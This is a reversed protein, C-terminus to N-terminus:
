LCFLSSCNEAIFEFAKEAEMFTKIIEVGGTESLLDSLRELALEEDEVIIARLM